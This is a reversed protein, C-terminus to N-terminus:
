LRVIYTFNFEPEFKVFFIASLFQHRFQMTFYLKDCISIFQGSWSICGRYNDVAAQQRSGKYVWGPREWSPFLFGQM